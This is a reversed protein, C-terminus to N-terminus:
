PHPRTPPGIWARYTGPSIGTIHTHLVPAGDEPTARDHDIRPSVLAADRSRKGPGETTWLRWKTASVQNSTWGDCPTSWDEVEYLIGPLGRFNSNTNQASTEAVCSLCAAVILLRVLRQMM